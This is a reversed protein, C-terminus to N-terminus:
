RQKSHTNAFDAELEAEWDAVVKQLRANRAVGILYGVDHRERWRIL